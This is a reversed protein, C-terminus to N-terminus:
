YNNCLGHLRSMSLIIGAVKLSRICNISRMRVPALTTLSFVSKSIQNTIKKTISNYVKLIWANVSQSRSNEPFPHLPRLKCSKPINTYLFDMMHVLPLLGPFLFLLSFLLFLTLLLFTFLYFYGGQWHEADWWHALMMDIVHRLHSKFVLVSLLATLGTRTRVVIAEVTQVFWWNIKQFQDNKSSLTCAIFLHSAHDNKDM